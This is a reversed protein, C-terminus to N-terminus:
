ELDKCFNLGQSLPISLLSEHKHDNDNCTFFNNTLGCLVDISPKKSTNLDQHTSIKNNQTHHINNQNRHSQNTKTNNNGNNSLKMNTKDDKSLSNNGKGSETQTMNTDDNFMKNKNM